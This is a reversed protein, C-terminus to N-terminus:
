FVTYLCKWNNNNNNNHDNNDDAAAAADDYYHNNNYLTSCYRRIFAVSKYYRYHINDFM